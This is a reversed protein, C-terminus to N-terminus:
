PNIAFFKMPKPWKKLWKKICDQSIDGFFLHWSKITVNRIMCQWQWHKLELNSTISYEVGLLVEDVSLHVLPPELDHASYVFPFEISMWESKTLCLTKYKVWLFLNVFFLIKFCKNVNCQQKKTPILTPGSKWAKWEQTQFNTIKNKNKQIINEQEHEMLTRIGIKILTGVGKM